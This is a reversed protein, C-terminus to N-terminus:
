KEPWCIIYADAFCIYVIYTSYIYLIYVWICYCNFKNDHRNNSYCTKRAHHRYQGVVYCEHVPWTKCGKRDHRLTMDTDVWDCASVKQEKRPRRSWKRRGFKSSVTWITLCFAMKFAVHLLCWIAWISQASCWALLEMIGNVAMVHRGSCWDCSSASLAISQRYAIFASWTWMWPGLCWDGQNLCSGSVSCLCFERM